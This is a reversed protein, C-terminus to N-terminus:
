HQQTRPGKKRPQPLPPPVEGDEQNAAKPAQAARRPSPQPHGNSPDSAKQRQHRSCNQRPGTHGAPQQRHQNQQRERPLPPHQQHHQQHHEANTYNLRLEMEDMIRMRRKRRNCICCVIIWIILLLVVGAGGGVFYWIYDFFWSFASGSTCPEVAKSTVESVKNSVKCSFKKNQVDVATMHLIRDIKKELVKNNELWTFKMEDANKPDPNCTFTVKGEKCTVNVEAKKMPERVCLQMSKLSVTKGDSDFVEPNYVGEDKKGVNKLLLSGNASVDEAKGTLMTNGRRQFIITNGKSWKLRNLLKHQLPVTAIGGVAAFVDCSESSGSFSCLLGLLVLMFTSAPAMKMVRLQLSPATTISTMEQRLVDKNLPQTHRWLRRRALLPLSGAASSSPTKMLSQLEELPSMWGATM